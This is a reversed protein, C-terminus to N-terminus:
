RRGPEVVLVRDLRFRLEPDPIGAAVLAPRLMEYLADATNIRPQVSDELHREGQARMTPQVLALARARVQELSRGTLRAWGRQTEVELEELDPELSFIVPDPVEVEVVGDDYVRIMDPTLRRVDFGYAIRGPVRLTATTTGLELGIIGPLVTRTNEVRTTTVVHITGTVLFSAPTERQITSHVVDRIQEPALRPRRSWLWTGAAGILLLAILAAIAARRVLPVSRRRGDPVHGPHAEV